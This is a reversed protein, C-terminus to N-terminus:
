RPYLWARGRYRRAYRMMGKKRRSVHLHSLNFCRFIGVLFHVIDDFALSLIVSM